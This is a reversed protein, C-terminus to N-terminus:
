YPCYLSRKTVYSTTYGWVLQYGGECPDEAYGVQTTKASNSYYLYQIDCIEYSPDCALAEGQPRATAPQSSVAAGVLAAAFAIGLYRRSGNQIISPM